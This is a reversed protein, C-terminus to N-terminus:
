PNRYVEKKGFGSIFSKFSSGDRFQNVVYAILTYLNRNEFRILDYLVDVFYISCLDKRLIKILPILNRTVVRYRELCDFCMGSREDKHKSCYQQYVPSRISPNALREYISNYDIENSYDYYFLHNFPEECGVGPVFDGGEKLFAGFSYESVTILANFYEDESNLKVEFVEDMQSKVFGFRKRESFGALSLYREMPIVQSEMTEALEWSYRVFSHHNVGKM